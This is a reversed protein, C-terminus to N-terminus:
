GAGTSTTSPDRDLTTTSAASPAVCAPLELPVPREVVEVVTADPAAPDARSTRVPVLLTLAPPGARRCVLAFTAHGAPDTRAELEAPAPETTSTSSSASPRSTTTAPGPAAWAGLGVLRLRAGAVGVARVIGDGDVQRDVVRVVLNVPDGLTPVDPAVDTLVRVGGHEEVSLDFRHEEGDALFRVEPSTQALSPPLFARVRYRGGPVGDVAFRGEADAVVETRVEGATTLRELRVVAGPVPGGPGVVTGVIRAEGARVVSSTTEGAVVPLAVGSRDVVSTSPVPRTTSTPRAEEGGDTCAVLALAAVVVAAAPRTM